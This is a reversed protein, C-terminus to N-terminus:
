YRRRKMEVDNFCTDSWRRKCHGYNDEQEEVCRTSSVNGVTSKIHRDFERGRLSGRGHFESETEPCFRCPQPADEVNYCFNDIDTDDYSTRFSRIPGRRESCTRREDMGGDGGIDNFKDSHMPGGFYDDNEARERPEFMDFRRMGRPMIRGSPSRLKFSRPHDHEKTSDMERLDNSIPPIFPPSCPRRGVMDEPFFPRRYSRVRDTRYIPSRRHSLSPHGNFGDSRGRPPSWLDPSRSRSRQPSKSHIQPIHLPGRQLPSFRREGHVFSDGREYQSQSRSFIPDMVDGPLGRVLKERHRLGVFESGSGRICRDPSIDRPPRRVMQLGHSVHGERGRPTRRRSLPHRFNPLENNLSKRGGRGGGLITGDRAVIYGSNELKAAATTAANKPRTYRFGSSCNYREAVFERGSDWDGRLNDVQSDVRGRGHMFGSGPYRVPQDQNRVQEFKRPRDMCSADRCGWPHLKDGLLVVDTHQEREIQSPSVRGPISRTKSSSSGSSGGVLTIIRGRTGRNDVDKVADDGLGSSEVKPFIINSMEATGTVKANEHQVDMDVQAVGASTEQGSSLGQNSTIKIEQSRPGGGGRSHDPPKRRVIKVHRKKSLETSPVLVTLPKQLLASQHIDQDSKENVLNNDCPRSCHANKSESLDEVKVDGEKVNSSTNVGRDDLYGSVNADRNDSKGYEVHDAEKEECANDEVANLLLPERVEGDEYDDDEGSHQKDEDMVCGAAHNGDSEYDIDYSEEEEMDAPINIREEDSEAIENNRHSVVCHEDLPKLTSSVTDANNLDVEKNPADLMVNAVKSENGDPVVSNPVTHSPMRKYNDCTKQTVDVNYPMGKTCTPVESNNSVEGTIPLKETCTPTVLTCASNELHGSMPMGSTDTPIELQSSSGEVANLNDHHGEHVPESKVFRQGILQMNSISLSKLPGQNYGEVPEPKVIGYYLKSSSGEVARLERKNSDDFPESKVSRCSIMNSGSAPSVLTGSSILSPGAEKFDVKASTYPHEQCLSSEPGSTSLHLRLNQIEHQQRFSITRSSLKSKNENVDLDYKQFTPNTSGESNIMEKLVTSVDHLSTAHSADIDGIVESSTSVEWTDMMTNLDWHSRNALVPTCGIKLETDNSESQFSSKGKSLALNLFCSDLRGQKECSGRSTQCALASVSHKKPVLSLEINGPVILFKVKNEVGYEGKDNIHERIQPAFGENEVLQLKTKEQFLSNEAVMSGDNSEFASRSGSSVLLGQEPISSGPTYANSPVLSVNIEPSNGEKKQPSMTNTHSIGSVDKANFTNPSSKEPNSNSSITSLVTDSANSSSFVLTSDSQEKEPLNPEVSQSPLAQSSPSSPPVLLFRRKKIPVVVASDSSSQALLKVGREEHGSVPM